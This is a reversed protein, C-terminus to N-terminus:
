PLWYLEADALVRFTIDMNSASLVEIRLSKFQIVSGEDLNYSISQIFEPREDYDIYEVYQILINNNTKGSYSLEFKFSGKKHRPEYEPEFIKSNVTNLIPYGVTSGKTDIRRVPFAPVKGDKFVVIGVAGDFYERSLIIFDGQGRDHYLYRIHWRQAVTLKQNRWATANEDVPIYVPMMGGKARFATIMPNGVATTITENLTYSKEITTLSMNSEYVPWPPRFGRCAPLVAVIIFLIAFIKITNYRTM